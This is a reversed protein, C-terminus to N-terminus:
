ASSTCCAADSAEHKSHLALLKLEVNSAWDALPWDLFCRRWCPRLAQFFLSARRKFLAKPCTQICGDSLNPHCPTYPAFRRWRTQQARLEDTDMQSRSCVMHTHLTVFRPSATFSCARLRGRLSSLRVNPFMCTTLHVPHRPNGWEERLIRCSMYHRLQSM